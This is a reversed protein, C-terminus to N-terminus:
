PVVQQEVQKRERARQVMKRLREIRKACCGCDKKVAASTTKATHTGTGVPAQQRPMHMPLTHTVYGIFCALIGVVALIAIGYLFRKTRM